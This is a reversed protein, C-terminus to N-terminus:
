SGFTPPQSQTWSAAISQQDTANHALPHSRASSFDWCSRPDSFLLPPGSSRRLLTQTLTWLVWTSPSPSFGFDEPALAWFVQLISLTWTPSLSLHVCSLSLHFLLLIAFLLILGLTYHTCSPGKFVLSCLTHTCLSLGCSTRCSVRSCFRLSGYSLLSMFPFRLSLSFCRLVFLCILLHCTVFHHPSM